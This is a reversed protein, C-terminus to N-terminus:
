HLQHRGSEIIQPPQGPLIITSRIPVTVDLTLVGATRHWETKIDGLVSKYTASASDLATPALPRITIRQAADPRSLDIDIGALGRYFYEEAAGLMFHDRSGSRANWSETLSTAGAALQSGYSPADKRLLMAMV